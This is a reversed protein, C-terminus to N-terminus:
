LGDKAGREKQGQAGPNTKSAQKPREKGFLREWEKSVYDNDAQQPRRGSGKSM